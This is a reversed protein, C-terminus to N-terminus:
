GKLDEVAGVLADRAAGLAAEAAEVNLRADRRREWFGDVLAEMTAVKAVAETHREIALVLAARCEAETAPPLAGVPEVQISRGQVPEDRAHAVADSM